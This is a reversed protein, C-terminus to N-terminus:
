EHSAGDGNVDNVDPLPPATKAIEPPLTAIWARIQHVARRLKGLLKVAQDHDKQLQTFQLRLRALEQEIARRAQQEQEVRDHLVRTEEQLLQLTEHLTQLSLLAEQHQRQRRTTIASALTGVLASVITAAGLIVAYLITGTM